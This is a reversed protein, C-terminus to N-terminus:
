SRVGVPLGAVAAGKNQTQGSERKPSAEQGGERVDKSNPAVATELPAM